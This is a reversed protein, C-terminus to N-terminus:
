ETVEVTDAPEDPDGMWEANDSGCHECPEADDLTVGAVIEGCDVCVPIYSDVVPTHDNIMGSPQEFNPNHQRYATQARKIIRQDKDISVLHRHVGDETQLRDRHDQAQNILWSRISEGNIYPIGGQWEFGEVTYNGERGHETVNDQVSIYMTDRQLRYRIWALGENSGGSRGDSIAHRETWEYDSDHSVELTSFLDGETQMNGEKWFRHGRAIAKADPPLDNSCLRVYQVDGESTEFKLLYRGDNPCGAYKCPPDLVMSYEVDLITKTKPIRTDTALPEEDHEPTTIFEGDYGHWEEESAADTSTDAPEATTNETPTTSSQNNSATDVPTSTNETDNLQQQVETIYQDAITKLTPSYSHGYGGGYFRNWETEEFTGANIASPVDSLCTTFQEHANVVFETVTNHPHTDVSGDLLTKPATELLTHVTSFQADILNIYTQVTAIFENEDDPHVEDWQYAYLDHQLEDIDDVLQNFSRALRHKHLFAHPPLHDETM